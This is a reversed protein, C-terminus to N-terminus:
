NGFLNRFLSGVGLYDLNAKLMKQDYFHSYSYKVRPDYINLVRNKFNNSTSNRFHDIALSNATNWFATDINKNALYHMLITDIAEDIYDRLAQPEFSRPNNWLHYASNITINIGTLSTGEFPEVFFNKNGIYVKNNKYPFKKYYNKFPITQHKNIPFMKELDELIEDETNINSNYMHTVFLYRKSPIMSIYGHQMAKIKTYMFPPYEHPIKIGLATNVPINKIINYSDDIVPVGSGDIIFDASDTIFDDTETYKINNISKLYAIFDKSNFQLSANSLKYSQFYDKGNFNEKMIGLKLNANFKEIDLYNVNDLQFPTDLASSIGVDWHKSDPKILCEIEWDTHLKFYNIALMSAIGDGLVVLKKM